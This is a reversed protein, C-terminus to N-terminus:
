RVPQCMVTQLNDSESQCACEDVLTQESKHVEIIKIHRDKIKEIPPHPSPINM